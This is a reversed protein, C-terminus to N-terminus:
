WKKYPCSNHSIAARMEVFCGCYKCMGNILADCDKCTQLRMKYVSEDTKIEEDLGNIYDYMNQYEKKYDIDRILCGKCVRM